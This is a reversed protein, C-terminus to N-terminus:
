NFIAQYSQQEGTSLIPILYIEVSGLDDHGLVQVAEALLPTKPGRFILTFPKRVSDDSSGAPNLEVESLEIEVVGESTEVRFVDNLCPEFITHDLEQTMSELSAFGSRM